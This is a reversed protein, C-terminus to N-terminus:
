RLLTRVRQGEEIGFSRWIERGRDVSREKGGVEEEEISDSESDSESGSESEGTTNGVSEM